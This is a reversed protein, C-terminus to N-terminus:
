NLLGKTDTTIGYLMVQYSKGRYVIPNRYLDLLESAVMDLVDCAEYDISVIHTGVHVHDRLQKPFNLISYSCPWMATGMLSRFMSAGDWSMQLGIMTHGHAMAEMEKWHVADYVDMVEDESPQPRYKPYSLYPALVSKLLNVIRDRIPLYYGQCQPVRCWLINKCSFIHTIVHLKGQVHAVKMIANSQVHNTDQHLVNQVTFIM